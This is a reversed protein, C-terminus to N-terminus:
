VLVDIKIRKRHEMQIFDNIANRSDDATLNLCTLINVFREYDYIDIKRTRFEKKVLELLQSSYYKIRKNEDSIQAALM